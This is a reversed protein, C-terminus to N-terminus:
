FRPAWYPAAWDRRRKRDSPEIGIDDLLHEPLDTIDAPPARPVLAAILVAKLTKWVGFTVFLRDVADPLSFAVLPQNKQM